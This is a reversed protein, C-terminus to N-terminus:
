ESNKRKKEFNLSRDYRESKASPQLTTPTIKQM